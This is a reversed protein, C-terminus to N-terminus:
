TNEAWKQQQQKTNAPTKLTPSNELSGLQLPGVTKEKPSTETSSLGTLAKELALSSPTVNKTKSKKTQQAAMLRGTNSKPQNLLTEKTIPQTDEKQNTTTTTEEEQEEDSDDDRSSSQGDESSKQMDETRKNGREIRIQRQREWEREEEERDQQLIKTEKNIQSLKNQAKKLKEDEQRNLDSYRKREENDRKLQQKAEAWQSNIDDQQKNIREKEDEIRKLQDEIEREKERMIRERDERDQEEVSTVWRDPNTGENEETRVKESREQRIQDSRQRQQQQNQNDVITIIPNPETRKTPQQQTAPQYPSIGPAQQTSHEWLKIHPFGDPLKIPNISSWPTKDQQNRVRLVFDDYGICLNTSM